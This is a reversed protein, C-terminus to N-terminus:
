DGSVMDGEARYADDQNHQRSHQVPSDGARWAKHLLGLLRLDCRAMWSISYGAAQHWASFTLGDQNVCVSM